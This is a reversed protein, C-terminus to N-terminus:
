DVDRADQDSVEEHYERRTESLGEHYEKWCLGRQESGHRLRWPRARPHV